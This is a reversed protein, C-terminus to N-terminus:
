DVFVFENSNLILRCANALGHEAAYAHIAEFEDRRPPRGLALRFAGHVQTPLEGHLKSAREALHEAARVIVRNNLMALAQLATLTTNRKPVLLSPDACDLCDMFPDPVSRVIFRYVSRRYGAPSDVDFRTYDYVPSHDDKFCFHDASPGGITLDLKGAVHLAADRISEADLRARNMRWLYRNDSDVKSHLSKDGSEKEAPRYSISHPSLGGCEL